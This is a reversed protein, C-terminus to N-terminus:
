IQRARIAVCRKSPFRDPANGFKIVILGLKGQASHMLPYHAGLTMDLRYKRVHPRLAGLAVGIDMAALHARATFLAVAHVPPVNRDLRDLVVVVTERQHTGMGRNVAIRAVFIPSQTIEGSHRRFTIGAVGLIKLFGCTRGVDAGPERRGALFAVVHICPEAHFKIVQFEGAKGQRAHVRGQGARGAVNASPELSGRCVAYAAVHRVILLGIIGAVHGESHGLGALVAVGRHCPNRGREVM